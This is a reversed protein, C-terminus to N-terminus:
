AQGWREAFYADLEDVQEDARRMACDGCVTAPSLVAQANCRACIRAPAAGEAARQEAICEDCLWGRDCEVVAIVHGGACPTGWAKARRRAERLARRKKRCHECFRAKGAVLSPCGDTECTRPQDAIDLLPALSGRGITNHLYTRARAITRAQPRATGAVYRKANRLPIGTLRSFRTPGHRRAAEVLLAAADGGHQVTDPEGARYRGAARGVSLVLRPDRVIVEPLAWPKHRTWAEAKDRLTDLIVVRARGHYRDLDARDTTVHVPEGSRTDFWTWKRWDSCDGGPDLAVPRASSSISAPGGWVVRALPRAEFAAPMDAADKPTPPQRRQLAPFDAGDGHEFALLGLRTAGAEVRAAHARAAEATWAGRGDAHLGSMTPPPVHDAIIHETHSVVTLAGDPERWALVWRKPGLSLAFTPADATGRVITFFSEGGIALADYGALIADLQAYSLARAHRSDGLGVQEGGNPSAIVIGGDTDRCIVTSGPDRVDAEVLALVCRTAAAVSAGLWPACWPGPKAGSGALPDFRTVNGYVMTNLFMRIHAARRRAEPDDPHRQLHRKLRAREAILVPVPDEDAPLAGLPTVLDGLRSQRSEPVLQNAEIIEFRAEGDLAIAGVLDLWTCDLEGEVPHVVLHSKSYDHEDVVEEPLSAGYSCVKARTCGWRRWTAADRMAGRVDGAARALFARLKRTVGRAHVREAVVLDWWGLLHANTPHASRQDYDVGLVLRGTVEATVLGGHLCACWADLERAPLRFKVLPATVGARTLARDAVTGPSYLDSLPLGWQGAEVDLAVVLAHQAHLVAAVQAAGLADSRVARPEVAEIGWADLHDGLDDSDVADLAFAAGTLDVFRGRYARRRGNGTTEWEGRREGEFSPRPTGFEVALGRKARQGVYVLPKGTDRQWRADEGVYGWGRIGLAWGDGFGHRRAPRWWAACLGLTRGLDWGIVVSRGRYAHRFLVTRSFTTLDTLQWRRPGLTTRVRHTACWRELEAYAEADHERLGDPCVVGGACVLGAHVLLWGALGLADPVAGLEPLGVVILALRDRLRAPRVPVAKPRVYGEM